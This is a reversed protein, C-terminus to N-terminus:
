TTAQEEILLFHDVALMHFIGMVKEHCNRLVLKKGREKCTKHWAVLTGIGSSDIYTVEALNLVVQMTEPCGLMRVFPIRYEASSVVDFRAPLDICGTVHSASNAQGSM